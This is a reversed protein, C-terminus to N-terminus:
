TRASDGSPTSSEQPHVHDDSSLLQQLLVGTSVTCISYAQQTEQTTNLQDETRTPSVFNQRIFLESCCVAAAGTLGPQELLTTKQVRQLVYTVTKKQPALSKNLTMFLLEQKRLVQVVMQKRIAHLLCKRNVSSKNIKSEMQFSALNAIHALRSAGPGPNVKLCRHFVIRTSPEHGSLWTKMLSFTLSTKKKKRYPNHSPPDPSAGSGM